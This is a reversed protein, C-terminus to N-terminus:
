LDFNRWFVFFFCPWAWSFLFLKILPLHHTPMDSYPGSTELSPRSSRQVCLRALVPVLDRLEAAKIATTCCPYESNPSVAKCFWSLEVRTPVTPVVGASKLEKYIDQIERWLEPMAALLTREGWCAQEKCGGAVHDILLQRCCTSIIGKSGDCTLCWVTHFVKHHRTNELYSAQVSIHCGVSKSAICVFASM